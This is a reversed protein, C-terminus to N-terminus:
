RPDIRVLKIRSAHGSTIEIARRPVGFHEALTRVLEENAAGDAPPAHVAVTLERGDVAVVRSTRARPKVHVRFTASPTPNASKSKTSTSLVL